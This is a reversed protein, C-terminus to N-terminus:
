QQPRVKLPIRSLPKPELMSPGKLAVTTMETMEQGERDNRPPFFISSPLFSTGGEEGQTSPTGVDVFEESAIRERGRREGRVRSKSSLDSPLLGEEATAATMIVTDKDFTHLADVMLDDANDTAMKGEGKYRDHDISDFDTDGIEDKSTFDPSYDLPACPPYSSSIPTPSPPLLPTPEEAARGGGTDEDRSVYVNDGAAASSRVSAKGAFSSRLPSRVTKHDTGFIDIAAAALRNRFGFIKTKGVDAGRGTLTSTSLSRPKSETGGRAHEEARIKAEERAKAEEQAKADERAKAEERAKVEARAKTEEQAKAEARAKERAATAKAAREDAERQERSRLVVPRYEEQGGWEEEEVPGQGALSNLKGHGGRERGDEDGDANNRNLSLNKSASKAAASTTVVRILEEHAKMEEEWGGGRREKNDEGREREKKMMKKVKKMMARRETTAGDLEARLAKNERYLKRVAREARDREEAATEADARARAADEVAAEAEYSLHRANERVTHCANTLSLFDTGSSSCFTSDFRDRCYDHGYSYGGEVRLLRDTLESLRREDASSTYADLAQSAVSSPTAPPSASRSSTSRRSDPSDPAWRNRDDRIDDDLRRHRESGGDNDDDKPAGVIVASNRAGEEAGGRTGDGGGGGGGGFGGEGGRMTRALARVAESLAGLESRYAHAEDELEAVRLTLENPAGESALAPSPSSSWTSTSSSALLPPPSSPRQRSGLLPPPAEAAPSPHFTAATNGSRHDHRQEMM